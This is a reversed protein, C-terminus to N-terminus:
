QEHTRHDIVCYRVKKERTVDVNVREVSKGSALKITQRPNSRWLSINYKCSGSMFGVSENELNEEYEVQPLGLPSDEVRSFWDGEVIVDEEARHYLKTVYMRRIKGISYTKGDTKDKYKNKVYYNCSVKDQQYDCTNFKVGELEVRQINLVRASFRMYKKQSTLINKCNKSPTWNAISGRFGQRKADARYIRLFSKFNADVTAYLNCIQDYVSVPLVIIKQSRRGSLLTYISINLSLFTCAFYALLVCLYLNLVFVTCICYM